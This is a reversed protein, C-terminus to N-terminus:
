LYRTPNRFVNKENIKLRKYIDYIAPEHPIIKQISKERLIMLPIM